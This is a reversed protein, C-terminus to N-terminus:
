EDYRNNQPSFIFPKTEPEPAAAPKPKRASLVFRKERVATFEQEDICDCNSRAVNWAGREGIGAHRCLLACGYDRMQIETICAVALLVLFRTVRETQRARARADLLPEM